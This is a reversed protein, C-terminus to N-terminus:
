EPSAADSWNLTDIGSYLNAFCAGSPAVKERSVSARLSLRHRAVVAMEQITVDPMNSMPPETTPDSRPDQYDRLFRFYIHDSM